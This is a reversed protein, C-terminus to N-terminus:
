GKGQQIASDLVWPFLSVEAERVLGLLRLQRSCRVLRQQDAGGHLAQLGLKKGGIVSQRVMVAHKGGRRM